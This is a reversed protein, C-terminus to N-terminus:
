SSLYSRCKWSPLRLECQFYLRCVSAARHQFRQLAQLSFASSTESVPKMIQQATQYLPHNKVAPFTADQFTQKSVVTWKLSNLYKTKELAIGVYLLCSNFFVHYLNSHLSQERIFVASKYVSQLCAINLSGFNNM